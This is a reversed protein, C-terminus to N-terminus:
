RRGRRGLDWPGSRRCYGSDRVGLDHLWVAVRAQYYGEPRGRKIRQFFGAMWYVTGAVGFTAAGLGMSFRGLLGAFTLSAPLWFVLSLAVILGLETYTCGKFITPEANLHGAQLSEDFM